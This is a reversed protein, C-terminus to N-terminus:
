NEVEYECNGEFLAEIISIRGQHTGGRKNFNFLMKGENNSSIKLRKNFERIQMRKVSLKLATWNDKNKSNPNCGSSRLLGCIRKSDEDNKSFISFVLPLSM